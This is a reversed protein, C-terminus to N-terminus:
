ERADLRRRAPEEPGLGHAGIAAALADAGRQQQLREVRQGRAAVGVADDAPRAVDVEITAHRARLRDSSRLRPQIPRRDPLFLPWSAWLQADHSTPTEM